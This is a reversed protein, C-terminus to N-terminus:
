RLRLVLGLFRADWDAYDGTAVDDCFTESFGNCALATEDIGSAPDRLEQAM